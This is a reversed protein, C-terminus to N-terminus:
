GSTREGVSEAFRGGNRYVILYREGVAEMPAPTIGFAELGEAGDPVVNDRGLMALQDSTIPLGPIIDGAAAMLAAAAHPVDVLARKSGITAAIWTQIDRLSYTRPGGLHYTRGGYRDPDSVAKAVARAVDVVYVPQFRTGGSVVPIVPALPMRALAAFRNLFQDDPGFIISPRVITARPIAAQVRAEGDAKSRGYASPSQPDAGIASVQVFSRVGAEAAARAANGAGEAQISRFSRGGGEALIGVLNVADTAGQMAADMSRPDRIDAAILQIQGLQGLPKLFLAKQPSRVAVRVRAGGEALEQVVHRGLFGSGGVVTVLRDM